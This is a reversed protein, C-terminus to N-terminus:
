SLAKKIKCQLAEHVMIQAMARDERILHFNSNLDKFLDKEDLDNLKIVTDIDPNYKALNQTILELKKENAVTIIVASADDICANVYTEKHMANGLFVNEGRSVGLEVLSLDSELVLYSINKSKLRMVVEQGLKGYGFIVIHSSIKQPKIENSLGVTETEKEILDAIFNLKKLIFPTAFMSIVAVAILIQESQSNFMNNPILAFIALAFEGIQCLSLATKVSVRKSLYSALLAFIIGAKLVMVTLLLALIILANEFIVSLNIQLGVTIFFLGLLLDRFPILNAEIQHKYETEAMLMGAIFAGLSFSFGFIYALTSAGIVLFLITAIFIEDSNTQIVRYFLYNIVYKGLLFLVVILLVASGLTKLIMTSVSAGESNFIDLMLLIPIVAIDQFLLIGLSKRGYIQTIEGNDNLTKLVIATSSLSLALGVILATKDNLGLMYICVFALVFGSIIVQLGGNVFVEKKMSMLHAFSFELGITFMLFVIGFEAIEDIESNSQFGFIESIAVGTVIYGIITPIEFKKFIVNLVISLSITILFALLFTEM